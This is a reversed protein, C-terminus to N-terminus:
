PANTGPSLYLFGSPPSPTRPFRSCISSVSAMPLFYNFKPFLYLSSSLPLHFHLRLDFSPCLSPSSSSYLLLADNPNLDLLSAINADRQSLVCPGPQLKNPRGHCCLTNQQEKTEKIQQISALIYFLLATYGSLRFIDTLQPQSRHNM